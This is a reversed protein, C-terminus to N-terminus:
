KGAHFVVKGGVVTARVPVDQITPPAVRTLDGGIVTLDALM